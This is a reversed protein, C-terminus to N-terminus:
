YLDEPPDKEILYSEILPVGTAGVGITVEASPSGKKKTAWVKVIVNKNQSAEKDPCVIEIRRILAPLKDRGLRPIPCPLNWYFGRTFVFRNKGGLPAPFIPNRTETNSMSDYIMEYITVKGSAPHQRLRYAGIICLVLLVILAVALSILIFLAPNVTSVITRTWKSEQWLYSQKLAVAPEITLNYTGPGPAKGVIEFRGVQTPSRQLAFKQSVDQGDQDKVTVKYVPPSGLFVLDPSVPSGDAVNVLEIESDFDSAQGFWNTGVVLQKASGVLVTNVLTTPYIDFTQTAEGLSSQSGDSLNVAARYTLQHPGSAEPTFSATYVGAPTLSFALPTTQAGNSIDASVEVPADPHVVAGSQTTVSVTIPIAVHQPLPNNGPGNVLQVQLKEVSFKGAELDKFIQFPKNDLDQSSASVLIKYNGPALPTFPSTYIQNAEVTLPLPTRKGGQDAAVEASLSLQFRPDSYDPLPSGSSDVIQFKLTSQSHQVLVQSAGSPELLRIVPKIGRVELDCEAHPQSTNLQWRGPQPLDIKVTEIASSFGTVSVIVDSRNADVVGSPDVVQLHDSLSNEKFLTFSVWQLYPPIVVEGPCVAGIIPDGTTNSAINQTLEEIITRFRKGIEKQNKVIGVRSADKAIKQWFVEMPKWYRDETALDNMAIVYLRLPPISLSDAVYEEIEKLHGSLTFGKEELYPQGDTLLILARVPCDDVPAPLRSFMSGAFQFARVMNTYGLSSRPLLADKSFAPALQAELASREAETTSAIPTWDLGIEPATGFHVLSVQVDATPFERTHLDNLLEVATRPGSFRLELPDNVVSSGDGNMSGSQDILFLVQLSNCGSPTQALAPGTTKLTFTFCISIILVLILSKHPWKRM